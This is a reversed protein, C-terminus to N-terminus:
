LPGNTSHTIMHRRLNSPNNFSAPCQSCTYPKEGSHTRLHIKLSGNQTFRKGCLSCVYPKEGTHIRMHIGLTTKNAFSKGCMNCSIHPEATHTARHAMLDERNSFLMGCFNCDLSKNITHSSFIPNLQQSFQDMHSPHGGSGDVTRLITTQSSPVRDLQSNKLPTRSSTSPLVSLFSEHTLDQSNFVQQDTAAFLTEIDDQLPGEGRGHISIIRLDKKNGTLYSFRASDINHAGAGVENQVSPRSFGDQNENPECAETDEEDKILIIDPIEEVACEKVEPSTESTMHGSISPTEQTALPKPVVPTKSRAKTLNARLASVRSAPRNSRTQLRLSFIESRMAKMRMRLNENDRLSQSLHLRLSASNESFLQRIELVAAKVLVDMISLLQSELNLTDTPMNTSM